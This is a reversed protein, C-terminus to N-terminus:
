PLYIKRICQVVAEGCGDYPSRTDEVEMTGNLMSHSFHCVKSKFIYELQWPPMPTVYDTWITPLSVILMDSMQVPNDYDRSNLTLTPTSALSCKADM